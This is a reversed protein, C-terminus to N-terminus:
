DDTSASCCSWQGSDRRELRGRERSASQIDWGLVESLLTIELRRLERYDLLGNGLEVCIRILGRDCTEHFKAAAFLAVISLSRITLFKNAFGLQVCRILVDRTTDITEDMFKTNSRLFSIQLECYDLLALKTPLTGRDKSPLAGRLDFLNLPDDRRSIRSVSRQLSTLASGLSGDSDDSSEDSPTVPLVVKVVRSRSPPVSTWGDGRRERNTVDNLPMTSFSNGRSRSVVVGSDAYPWSSAGYAEGGGPVRREYESM